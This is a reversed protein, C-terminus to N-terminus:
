QSTKAQQVIQVGSSSGIRTAGAEIMALAEALTHVGGAAKVGMLGGVVRRMLRVDEVTAGSSAFGTSTKVFDAGAAKCLLCALIKENPNLLAMELIVKVIAKHRHATRVVAQIDALVPQYSGSKLGGIHIVMDVESAGAQICQQTEKAKTHALSAGLPFGIVTCVGVGSGQLWLAALPIYCPNICVTAFKNELAEQCLKEVQAVTADPKLLTHDIWAAIQEGVPMPQLLPLAPLQQEYSQALRLIKAIKDM